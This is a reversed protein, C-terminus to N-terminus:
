AGLFLMLPRDLTERRASQCVVIVPDSRRRGGKLLVIASYDAAGHKTMCEQSFVRIFM